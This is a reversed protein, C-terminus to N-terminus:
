FGLSSEYLIDGPGERTFASWTRRSLSLEGPLALHIERRLLRRGGTGGPSGPASAQSMLVGIHSSAILGSILVM